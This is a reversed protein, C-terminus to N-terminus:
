RGSLASSSEDFGSEGPIGSAGLHTVPGTPLAETPNAPAGESRDIAFPPASRSNLQTTRQGAGSCGSLLAVTAAATIVLKQTPTM